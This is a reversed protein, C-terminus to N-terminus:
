YPSQVKRAIKREENRELREIRDRTLESCWFLVFAERSSCLVRVFYGKLCMSLAESLSLLAIMSIATSPPLPPESCSVWVYFVM